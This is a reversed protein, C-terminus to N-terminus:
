LYTIKEALYNAEAEKLLRQYVPHKTEALASILEETDISAFELIDVIPNFSEMAADIAEDITDYYNHSTEEWFQKAM